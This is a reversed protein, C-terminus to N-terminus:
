EEDHWSIEPITLLFNTLKFEKRCKSLLVSPLMSLELTNVKGVALTVSQQGTPLRDECTITAGHDGYTVDHIIITSQESMTSSDPITIRSSSRSLALASARHQDPIGSAFGSTSWLVIDETACTLNLRPIPAGSSICQQAVGVPNLVAISPFRNYPKM